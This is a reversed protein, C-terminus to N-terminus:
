RCGIAKDRAFSRGDKGPYQPLVHDAVHTQEAQLEDMGELLRSAQLPCKQEQTTKHCLWLLMWINRGKAENKVEKQVVM